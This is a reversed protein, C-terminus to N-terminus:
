CVEPTVTSDASVAATKIVTKQVNEIYMELSIVSRVCSAMREFDSRM